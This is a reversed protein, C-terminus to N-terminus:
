ADGPVQDSGMSVVLLSNLLLCAAHGKRAQPSIGIPSLTRWTLTGFELEYLDGLSSGSADLGGFVLMGLPSSPQSLLPSVTATHETRKSPVTGTVNTSIDEWVPGASATPGLHLLFLDNLRQRTAMEGGFLYASSMEPLVLSAGRRAVPVSSGTALMEQWAGTQVNLRWLDNLAGLTADLGGFLWAYRGLAATEAVTHQLVASALARSPPLNTHTQLSYQVYTEAAAPATISLLGAVMIARGDMGPKM